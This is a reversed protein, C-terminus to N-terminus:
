IIGLVKLILLLVIVGFFGSPFYGFDHWGFGPYGVLMLVILIVILVRLNM